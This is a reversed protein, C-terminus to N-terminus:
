KIAECNKANAKLEEGEKHVWVYSYVIQGDNPATCKKGLKISSPVIHSSCSALMLGVLLIVVTKM